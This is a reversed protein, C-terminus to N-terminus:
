VCSSVGTAPIGAPKSERSNLTGGPFLWVCGTARWADLCAPLRREGAATPIVRLPTGDRAVVVTSRGFADLRELPPPFARDLAHEAFRTAALALALAILVIAVACASARLGRAVSGSRARATSRESTREESPREGGRATSRESPRVTVFIPQRKV